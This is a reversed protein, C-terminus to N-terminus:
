STSPKGGSMNYTNATNYTNYQNYSNNMGMVNFNMDNPSGSPMGTFGYTSTGDGADMSPKAGSGLTGLAGSPKAGSPAGSLTGNPAPSALINNLNNNIDMM